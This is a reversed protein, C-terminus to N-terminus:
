KVRNKWSGGQSEEAAAAALGVSLFPGRLLSFLSPFILPPFCSLDFLTYFHFNVRTRSTVEDRAAREGSVTPEEDGESYSYLFDAVCCWTTIHVCHM